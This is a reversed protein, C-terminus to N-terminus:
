VFHSQKLPLIDSYRGIDFTGYLLALSRTHANLMTPPGSRLFSTVETDGPPYGTEGEIRLTYIITFSEKAYESILRSKGWGSSQVMTVSKSYFESPNSDWQQQYVALMEKFASLSTGQYEARWQQHLSRLTVQVRRTVSPSRRSTPSLLISLAEAFRNQMLETHLQPIKSLWVATAMATDLEQREAPNLGFEACKQAAEELRDIIAVHSARTGEVLPRLPRAFTMLSMVRNFEAADQPRARRISRMSLDSM